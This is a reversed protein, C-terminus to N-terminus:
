GNEVVWSDTKVGELYAAVEAIAAESVQGGGVLFLPTPYNQRRPRFFTLAVDIVNRVGGLLRLIM